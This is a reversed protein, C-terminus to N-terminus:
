TKRAKHFALMGAFIPEHAVEIFGVHELLESLERPSYFMRLAQIFYRRCDRAVKGSSFFWATTTLCARLYVYYLEEVMRNGPRLMDCHYFQGGPKLVRRVEELVRALRLHRSAFQLTVIDFHNDPFPLDHVDGITSEIQLGLGEAHKRGVDQMAKSRDIAHVQLSPEKRLLEIGIANTGACVDLVRAGPKVAITSVFRRRWGNWLGLSAVVNAKDYYPAVDAFVADLQDNWVTEFESQRARERAAFTGTM